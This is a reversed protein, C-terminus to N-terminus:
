RWKNRRGEEIFYFVVYIFGILISILVAAFAYGLIPPWVTAIAFIISIIGLALATNVAARQGITM